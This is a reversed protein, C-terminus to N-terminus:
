LIGERGIAQRRLFFFPKRAQEEPLFRGVEDLIELSLQSASAAHLYYAKMFREVGLSAGQNRYRFRETLQEQAEFSLVDSKKGLVYHLENRIRLLYDMVHRVGEVAQVNVVGKQRLERLDRCKYKVRAAWVATQLDRLGGRGEKVNPELLFVTSGVKEHRARMESIKKDIFRDGASYYLFRELDKSAEELFARDGAVFRYDLLSTRISDDSAGLRITEKVNRVSHGVELGLDWLPYLMWETMAEVYRDAKYPYLFLLDVDSKPCLESRGYGGVAVVAMRYKLGPASSLFRAKAREHLVSVIEDVAGSYKRCAELGGCLCTRQEERLVLHTDQLFERTRDLFDRDTTGPRSLERSLTPLPM